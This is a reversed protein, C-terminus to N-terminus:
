NNKAGAQIWDSITKTDADSLPAAGKPMRPQMTGKIYSILNSGDPNGALVTPGDKGGKMVSDYNSLDVGGKPRMAGHCSLCAKNFIAQVAAYGGKASGEASSGSTGSTTKGTAGSANSSQDDSGKCGFALLLVGAILLCPCVKM